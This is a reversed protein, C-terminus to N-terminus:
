EDDAPNEKWSYKALLDRVATRTFDARNLFLSQKILDNLKKNEVDTIKATVQKGM